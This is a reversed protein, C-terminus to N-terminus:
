TKEVKQKRLRRLRKAQPSIHARWWTPGHFRRCAASFECRDCYGDPLIFYNGARVGEILTQLTQALLRGAPEAWVSSAFSSRAVPPDWRPALFVLDVNEPLTQSSKVQSPQMVSYLPPQLRLGRVAAVALDRDEGSMKPGVRYKYDVVRLGPPHARRDVRDLRGHVRLGKFAKADVGELSGDAEVEFAEPQFGSARYEDQDALVALLVMSAVTEKALQWILPYGTGHKRAYAAFVEDAAAQIEAQLKSSTLESKPWGARLLREYSERLAAHCLDGLVPAPLDDRPRERIPDLKLVQASFYQFPCRAYRELSTPAFGRETTEAWHREVMGTCGDHPGLAGAAGELEQVVTAGHRFLAGSRGTADLLAAPDHQHLILGLSLEDRTLLSPVFLPLTLRDSLRRPVILDPARERGDGDRRDSEVYSSAALPRGDADARQYSLYLRDRAADQLLAFLLQEEEYGGLKEDIKYGLTEGLVRRHRDRLFADERISRPFMKENLGLIFLARFPLGRAAMADLVSVGAHAVPEIPITAWEMAQTFLEVWEDWSVTEELRDLQRVQQLVAALARGVRHAPDPEDNDWGDEELGPIALHRAALKLFADTLAGVLGERPLAGVDELLGAVLSALVRLHPVEIRVDGRGEIAEIESGDDEGVWVQVSGVSTLRRWEDEGRTIGLSHVALRWLDPRPEVPQAGGRDLRYCPSTLVDLVPVRYLKSLPLSALQLITKAVPERLLPSTAATVFPIRHRDFARSLSARYPELTRAVVGIEDFRYGNTEVLTLIEKCVLTLEEDTGVANAVQRQPTHGGRKKVSPRVPHRVQESSAVLPELHREFFRRAFSCAPQDMLPFYLTVPATRTVAEFLSLQVQTLDYFGYYCLRALRTLFPSQPIAPTVAAALDDASGIRLARGVEQVAAYLTFLARLKDTDDEGFMGDGVGRLATAPDVTADKLDRVTTWLASWGGLTLSSLGLDQLGPLERHAIHKLLHSFFLDSVVDLRAEDGGTLAQRERALHLALQHFTLFHVDLLALRHEICLLQKLRRRLPDSPVVIALPAFPDASKLSQVEEVLAQELDPHYSGTVIKLM